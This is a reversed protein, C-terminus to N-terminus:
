LSCRQLNCRDASPQPSFGSGEPRIKQSLNSTGTAKGLPVIRGGQFTPAPSLLKSASGTPL